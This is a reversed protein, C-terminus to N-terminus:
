QALVELLQMRFVLTANPPISGGAGAAGYALDPPIIVWADGGPKMSVLAEQWGKIVGNVRTQFPQGRDVSSDFKKGDPLWGTYHAKVASTPTPSDGAGAKVHVIWMKSDTFKGTSTDVGQAAVFLRAKEFVDTEARKLAEAMEAEKQKAANIAGEVASAEVRAAKNIVVPTDAAAAKGGDARPDMHVPTKAMKDITDMGEIVRGFVCYGWSGPETKGSHNLRTNNAVNIFFQSTASNPDSTRAMAITGIDNTLGNDAENAVPDKTPKKTYDTTMGGGQIMFGDLIRHFMTGDYFGENTYALFNEVTKPAKTKNLELVFDGLTTSVKVYEFDDARLPMALVGMACVALCGAKKFSPM